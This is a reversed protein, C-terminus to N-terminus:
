VYCPTINLYNLIREIPIIYSHHDDGAKAIGIVRGFLDVVPAGSDGGMSLKSTMIVDYTTHGDVTVFTSFEIIKGKQYGSTRGSLSVSLGEHEQGVSLKGTPGNSNLISASLDIPNTLEAIAADLYDSRRGEIVTGIVNGGGDKKSPSVIDFNIENSDKFDFISNEFELSCLVHYCGLLYFKKVGNDERFVKLGITGTAKNDNRVRGVSCGPQKPLVNQCTQKSQNPNYIHDSVDGSGIVTTPLDYFAGNDEFRISQPVPNALASDQKHQNVIFVLRWDNVDNKTDIKVSHLGDYKGAWENQHTSKALRLIRKKEENSMSDFETKSVAVKNSDSSRFIIDKLRDLLDISKRSFFGFIFSLVVLWYSLGDLNIDGGETLAEISLILVITVLPSYMLKAWHVSQEKQDFEGKRIAETGHFLLSALVGFLSWFIIEIFTYYGTLWFPSNESFEYGNLYLRLETSPLSKIALWLSPFDISDSYGVHLLYDQILHKSTTTDINNTDDIVGVIFDIQGQSLSVKQKKDEGILCTTHIVIYIFVLAGLIGSYKRIWKKELSMTQGSRKFWNM